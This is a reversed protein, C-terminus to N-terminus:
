EENELKASAMVAWTVKGNKAVVVNVNTLKNREATM